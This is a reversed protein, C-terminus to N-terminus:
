YRSTDCTQTHEFLLKNGQVMSNRKDVTLHGSYKGDQKQLYECAYEGVHILGCSFIIGLM